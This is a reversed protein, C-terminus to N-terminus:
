RRSPRSTSSTSPMEELPAEEAKRLLRDISALFAALTKGSGTPAAILTDRGSIIKPWGQEQAETPADFRRQFWARVAPHFADLVNM